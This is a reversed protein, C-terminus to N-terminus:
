GNKRYRGILYAIGLGALLYGANDALSKWMAKSGAKEETRGAILSRIGYTAVPDKDPRFDTYRNGQTFQTALALTPMFAEIETLQSKPAWVTLAISGQRGLIRLKYNISDAPPQGGRIGTAWRLTHEAADYFPHVVWGTLEMPPAQVQMRTVNQRDIDARMEALIGQPDLPATGADAIYGGEEYHIIVAWGKPDALSLASPVVMGALTTSGGPDGFLNMLVKEAEDRDLFRYGAPLAITAIKNGIEVTGDQYHLGALFDKVSVRKGEPAAAAGPKAQAVGQAKATAPPVAAPAAPPLPALAPAPTQVASPSPTQGWAPALVAAALLIAALAPRALAPRALPFLAL